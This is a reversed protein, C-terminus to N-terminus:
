YALFSSSSDNSPPKKTGSTSPLYASGKIPWFNIVTDKPLPPHAKNWQDLAEQEAVRKKYDAALQTSNANYYQHIKDLWALDEAPPPTCTTDVIYSFSGSTFASNAPLRSATDPDWESSSDFLLYFLSYVTTDTEVELLSYFQGFDINSYARYQGQNGWKVETVRHDYVTAEFGVSKWEKQERLLEAQQQEPTLVPEPAPTPTPRVPLVPPEVINLFASRNGLNFVSQGLVKYSVIPTSNAATGTVAPLPQALSAIDADVQGLSAIPVWITLGLGFAPAIFNRPTKM